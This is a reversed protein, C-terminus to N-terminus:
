VKGTSGFGGVGRASDSLEDVEIFQAVPAPKLILQGVREGVEITYSQDGANHLIVKMPGRYGSDISGPSNLIFLSHKAALGSRSRLQMEWGEPIELSFGLDITLTRGPYVVKREVSYVDAGVDGWHAYQPVRAM